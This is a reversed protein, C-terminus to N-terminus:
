VVQPMYYIGDLAECSAAAGSPASALRRRATSSMATMSAYASSADAHSSASTARRASSAPSSRSRTTQSSRGRARLGRRTCSGRTWSSSSQFVPQLPLLTPCPRPHAALLPARDPPTRGLCGFRLRLRPRPTAAAAACPARRRTHRAAARAGWAYPGAGIIRKALPTSWMAPDVGAPPSQGKALAFTYREGRLVPTGDEGRELQLRDPQCFGFVVQEGDASLSWSASGIPTHARGHEFFFFANAERLRWAPRVLEWPGVGVVARHAPASQNLAPRPKRRTTDGSPPVAREKWPPSAASGENFLDVLVKTAEYACEPPAAMPSAPFHGTYHRKDFSWEGAQGVM